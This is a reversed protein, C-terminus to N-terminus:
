INALLSIPIYERGCQENVKNPDAKGVHHCKHYTGFSMYSKRITKRGVETGSVYMNEMLCFKSKGRVGPVREDMM